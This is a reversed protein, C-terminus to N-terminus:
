WVTADAWAARASGVQALYRGYGEEYREVDRGPSVVLESGTWAAEDFARGVVDFANVVVGRAGVESCRPLRLERGLVDAFIQLWAASRAGGGAVALSGTLGAADLCHRAAYAIGECVARVLDAPTSQVTLGSFQGRAFPDVFPAREGSPSFYPLVSVGNAGAGSEGLMGALSGTSAGVLRLTWDLSATGVMAPMARLWRGPAGTALTLGAPTGSTDPSATIVQCALTTGIIVMGDGPTVVGTGRACAPLDYPGSVIPTGAALGTASAGAAHLEGVPQHAHIPALLGARHTLGLASLAVDSYGGNLDSYPMSSDSADTARLGTLHQLVVDKCYGATAARDLTSPEHEDLYSMIAAPSGPFQISGNVRFVAEEVGAATWDRVTQAARGDMWSVANRVPVGDADVLWLGDGQGTVAVFEPQGVRGVLASLVSTVSALVEATDQEIRGPAPHILKTPVSQVDLQTGDAGFAVAKTISTGVDVGIYM